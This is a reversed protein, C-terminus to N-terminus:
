SPKGKRLTLFNGFGLCWIGFLNCVGIELILVNLMRNDGEGRAPSPPPSPSCEMDVGVETGGGDLPLIIM